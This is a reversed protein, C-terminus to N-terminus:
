MESGQLSDVRERQYDFSIYQGNLCWYPIISAIKDHQSKSIFYYCNSFLAIWLFSSKHPRCITQLRLAMHGVLALFPHLYTITTDRCQSKLQVQFLLKLSNRFVVSDINQLDITFVTFDCTRLTELILIIKEYM